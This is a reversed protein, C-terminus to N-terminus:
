IENIKNLKALIKTRRNTLRKKDSDAQNMEANIEIIRQGYFWMWDNFRYRNRVSSKDLLNMHHLAFKSLESFKTFDKIKANFRREEQSRIM